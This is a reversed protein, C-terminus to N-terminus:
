QAKSQKKAEILAAYHLCQDYLDSLLFANEVLAQQNEQDLELTVCGQADESQVISVDLLHVKGSAVLGLFMLEARGLSFSKESM